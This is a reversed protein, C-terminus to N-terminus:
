PAGADSGGPPTITFNVVKDTMLQVGYQETVGAKITLKAPGAPVSSGCAGGLNPTLDVTLGTTDTADPAIMYCASPISVAGIQLEFNAATLVSMPVPATFVIQFGMAAMDAPISDGDGPATSKVEFAATTIKICKPDDVAHGTTDTVPPSKVCINSAGGSPLGHLTMGNGPTIVIAPGPPATGYIGQKFDSGAPDYFSTLDSMPDGLTQTNLPVMMGTPGTASIVGDKLKAQLKINDQDEIADGNLGESFVMRLQVYYSFTKNADKPNLLDPVCRIDSLTGMSDRTQFTGGWARPDTIDCAGSTVPGMPDQDVIYASIIKPNGPVDRNHDPECSTMTFAAVGALAGLVAISPSRFRRGQTM